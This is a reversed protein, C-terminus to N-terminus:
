WKYTDTWFLFDEIYVVEDEYVSNVSAIKNIDIQTTLAQPTDQDKWFQSVIYTFGAVSELVAKWKLADEKILFPKLNDNFSKNVILYKHKHNSDRMKFLRDLFWSLEQEDIIKPTSTPTTVADTSEVTEEPTM